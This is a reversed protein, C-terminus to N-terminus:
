PLASEAEPPMAPVRILGPRPTGAIEHVLALIAGRDCAGDKWAAMAAVAGAEELPRRSRMLRHYRASRGKWSAPRRRGRAEAWAICREARAWETRHNAATGVVAAACARLEQRATDCLSDNLARLLGGLVPSVSGPHDSFPEGALMSALEM